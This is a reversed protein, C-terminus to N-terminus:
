IRMSGHQARMDLGLLSTLTQGYPNEASRLATLYRSTTAVNAHGLRRQIESLPAGAQELARAFTHRTTHVRTTGLHRGCIGAVGQYGLAQGPSRPGLHMWLPTTSDLTAIGVPYAEGLYTLLIAGLEPPLADRLPEGGKTRRFTLVLREGDREVDGWRLGALEAARRGTYLAIALLAHDRQGRLTSRDIATLRTRVEEPSLARAGVYDRVHKREVREIPNPGTFYGRRIAFRYFSSLIALRQNCTAASTPAGSRWDHDAWRQAVGAVRAPEGDLHVGDAALASRFRAFADRYSSATHRSHSRAAMAALWEHEVHEISLATAAPFAAVGGEM